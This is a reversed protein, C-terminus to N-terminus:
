HRKALREEREAVFCGHFGLPIRFGFWARAALKLDGPDRIDVFSEDGDSDYGLHAIWPRGSNDLLVVPEGFMQGRRARVERFGRGDWSTLTDFALPDGPSDSTRLAHITGMSRGLTRPDIAPFEIPAGETLPTRSVTRAELDIRFETMQSMPQTLGVTRGWSEMLRFGAAVDTEMSVLRITAGDDSEVANGHHFIMNAPFSEITIPAGRGDKRAVIIRLPKDGEAVLNEAVCRNRLMGWVNVRVPPLAV